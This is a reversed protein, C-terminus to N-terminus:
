LQKLRFVRLPESTNAPVANSFAGTNVDFAGIVSTTWGAMPLGLNTSTLVAYSGGSLGNTGQLVLTDGSLAARKIVPARNTDTVTGLKVESYQTADPNNGTIATILVRYTKYPTSNAFPIIQGWSNRGPDNDLGATGEYLLVFGDGGAQGANANTSGEVTISLPDRSPLDNATAFEIGNVVTAGVTPTVAFGTNIGPSVGTDQGKNFYKSFLNGDLINPALETNGSGGFDGAVALTNTGGKTTRKLPIIADSAILVNSIVLTSVAPSSMDVIDAAREPPNVVVNTLKGNLITGQVTTQFPAHLKFTANWGQPWAPSLLIKKGDTQMIMQHLAHEGNGGNDEDPAYDNRKAWFAPFKLRAEKNTFNYILYEKATATQGVMAAQIPDQVWCGKYTFNRGKFSTVAIQLDPKGLGYLRYPYISYLEPNESNRGQNTQSGTYPLLVTKGNTVGIPLPPVETLMRVWDGHSTAPIFENTLAILRPLVAKLGAVDPAPDHVKWFQEIANVPDLLIKGQADRTFHQDYFKLGATAVPLLTDKLFNTDGTYDFYDLMMMSLELIPVFYHLTWSEPVEPGAYTLGGWFPATEAFYAGEHHYYNSVLISNEPVQELYMKFLPQMLDFDGAAMRPWYMARTNQFWYQGGWDRGDATYGATPNDVVFLSGNFKIPQAGRGACATIFRQLVYGRTVNTADSDGTVYVWSRHWFADWWDRHAQRTQELDLGDTQSIQTELQSLWLNSTATKATMPHISILHSNAPVASVLNTSNVNSLGTGKIIAGFTLNAVNTIINSPNRHLWEIRNTLGTVAVDGNAVGLRWNNLSVSVSVPYNSSVAEVRIVPNNADVWLRLTLRNSSYGEQIEIEGEHLKLTQSFPAGATFPNPNLSVRVAGLKLLAYAEFSTWWNNQNWADSKAIYFAVTGNTEVWVNLGIDGNGLPMSEASTPGAVIWTVDYSDLLPVIDQGSSGLLPMASAFIILLFRKM